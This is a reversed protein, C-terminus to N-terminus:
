IIVAAGRTQGLAQRLRSLCSYVAIDSVYTQSWCHEVLEDRTIVRHPHQLFYLLVERVQREATIKQGSRWLEHRESDYTCSSFRFIM